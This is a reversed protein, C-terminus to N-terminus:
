VADLEDWTKAKKILATREEYKLEAHKIDTNAREVKQNLHDLKNKRRAIEKKGQAVELILRESEAKVESDERLSKGREIDSKLRILTVGLILTVVFLLGGWLWRTWPGASKVKAILAETM